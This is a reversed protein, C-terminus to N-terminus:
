QIVYFVPKPKLLHGTQMQMTNGKTNANANTNGKTNPNPEQMSCSVWWRYAIQKHKLAIGMFPAWCETNFETLLKNWLVEFIFLAWIEIKLKSSQLCHFSSDWNKNGLWLQETIDSSIQFLSKRVTGQTKERYTKKIINIEIIPIIGLTSSSM